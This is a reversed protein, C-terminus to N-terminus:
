MTKKNIKDQLDKSDQSSVGLTINTMVMVAVIIIALIRKIMQKM